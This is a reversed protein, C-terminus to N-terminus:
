EEEGKMDAVKGLIEEITECVYFTTQQANNLRVESGRVKVLDSVSLIDNVRIAVKGNETMVVAIGDSSYVTGVTLTIFGPKAEVAKTTRKKLEARLANIVENAEQMVESRCDDRDHYPCKRCMVYEEGRCQLGYQVIKIKDLVNM